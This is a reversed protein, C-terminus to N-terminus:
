DYIRAIFEDIEDYCLPFTRIVRYQTDCLGYRAEWTLPEIEENLVCKYKKYLSNKLGSRPDLITEVLTYVKGFEIDYSEGWMLVSDGLLLHAKIRDDVVDPVYIHHELLEEKSM